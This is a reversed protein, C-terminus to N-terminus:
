PAQFGETTWKDWPQKDGNSPVPPRQTAREARRYDVVKNFTGDPELKVELTKGKLDEPRGINAMGCARGCGQLDRKASLRVGEQRDEDPCTFNLNYWNKVTRGQIGYDVLVAVDGGATTIFEGSQIEATYWGTPLAEFQTEAKEPVELDLRM